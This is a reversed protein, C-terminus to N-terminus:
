TLLRSRIEEPVKAELAPRAEILWAIDALDKQRKSARRTADQYAWIKGQLLDEIDAVPLTRELVDRKGSRSVFPQYRPDTQIQIRVDSQKNTLNLSHEFREVKCMPPLAQELEALRSIVVVVDCDLTVVPEAYANVALGDIVCYEIHKESLLAPFRDLFDSKDGTVLKQFEKATM